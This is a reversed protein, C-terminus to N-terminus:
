LQYATVHGVDHGVLCLYTPIHTHTEKFSEAPSAHPMEWTFQSDLQFEHCFPHLMLKPVVFPSEALLQM